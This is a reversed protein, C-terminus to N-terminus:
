LFMFYTVQFFKYPTWETHFISPIQPHIVNFNDTIILM